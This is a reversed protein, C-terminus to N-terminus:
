NERVSKELIKGTLLEVGAAMALALTASSLIIILMYPMSEKVSGLNANVFSYILRDSLPSLIYALFREIKENVREPALTKILIFVCISSATNQLSGWSNWLRIQFSGGHSRWINYASSAFIILILILFVKAPRLKKFNVYTRLYAGMFFYTIPYINYWWGPLLHNIKNDDYAAFIAKLSTLENVNFVTPGLTM